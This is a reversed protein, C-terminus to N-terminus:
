NNILINEIYDNKSKTYIKRNNPYKKALEQKLKEYEKLIDHNNNLIDRFKIMNQFRKDNINLIHILFFTENENEKILLIENKDFNEKITYIYELKKLYKKIDEMRNLGIAIDIIPKASLGKVATSGVHEIIFTDKNFINNLNNKENEFMIKWTDYNKELKVTENLLGM